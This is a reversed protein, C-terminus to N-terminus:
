APPFVDAVFAAARAPDISGAPDHTILKTLRRPSTAYVGRLKFATEFLPWDADIFCLVGTVPLEGVAQKVRGVQALLGDVLQSRDRGAIFLRETRPRFLGGEARREPRGTYRKADIVWIRKTTIVLHDINTRGGPIRRDHLVAVKDGGVRNLRAGLREEGVAGRKWATTSGRSESLGVAVSGLRGWRNRIRQEDAARRREYERRASAGPTGTTAANATAAPRQETATCCPVCWTHGTTTNAVVVAQAALPIGCSACAGPQALQVWVVTPSMQVGGNRGDTRRSGPTM